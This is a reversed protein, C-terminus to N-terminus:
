SGPGGKEKREQSSLLEMILTIRIEPKERLLRRTGRKFNFGFIVSSQTVASHCQLGTNFLSPLSTYVKSLSWLNLLSPVASMGLCQSPHPSMLRVNGPDMLGNMPGERGTTSWYNVVAPSNGSMWLYTPTHTPTHLNRIIFLVLSTVIHRLPVQPFGSFTRSEM